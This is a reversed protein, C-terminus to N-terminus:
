LYKLLLEDIAKRTSQLDYQHQPASILAANFKKKQSVKEIKVLIHYSCCHITCTSIEEGTSTVDEDAYLQYHYCIHNSPAIIFSHKTVHDSSTFDIIMVDEDYEVVLPSTYKKAEPMNDIHPEQATITEVPPIIRQTKEEDASIEVARFVKQTENLIEKNSVHLQTEVSIQEKELRESEALTPQPEDLVRHTSEQTKFSIQQPQLQESSLQQKAEISFLHEFTHPDDPTSTKYFTKRTEVTKERYDISIEHLVSQQAELSLPCTKKDAPMQQTEFQAKNLAPQQTKAMPQCSISDDKISLEHVEVSFPSTKHSIQNSNFKFCQKVEKTKTPIEAAEKVDDNIGLSSKETSMILNQHNDLAAEQHTNTSQTQPTTGVPIQSVIEPTKVSTCETEFLKHHEEIAEPLQYTIQQPENKQTQDQVDILLRSPELTNLTQQIKHHTAETTFLVQQSSPLIEQDTELTIPQDVDVNDEDSFAETQLKQSKEHSIQQLSQQLSTKQPEFMSTPALQCTTTYITDPTSQIALTVQDDKVRDHTRSSSAQINTTIQANDKEVPQRLIQEATQDPLEQTNSTNVQPEHYTEVPTEQSTQKSDVPVHCADNPPHQVVHVSTPMTDMVVEHVSQPESVEQATKPFQRDSIKESTCLTEVEVCQRKDTVPQDTDPMTQETLMVPQSTSDSIHQTESSCWEHAQYLVDELNDPMVQLISSQHTIDAECSTVPADTSTICHHTEVMVVKHNDDIFQRSVKDSEKIPQQGGEDNPALLPQQQPSSSCVIDQPSDNLLQPTNAKTSCQPNEKPGYFTEQMKPSINQPKMITNEYTIQACKDLTPEAPVSNYDLSKYMMQQETEVALQGLINHPENQVQEQCEVKHIEVSTQTNIVAPQSQGSNIHLTKGSMSHVQPHEQLAEEDEEVLLKKHKVGHVEDSMLELPDRYLNQPQDNMVEAPLQQSLKDPGVFIEQTDNSTEITMQDEMNPFRQTTSETSTADVMVFAQTSKAVTVENTHQSKILKTIDEDETEPSVQEWITDSVQSTGVQAEQPSEEVMKHPAIEQTETVMDQPYIVETVELSERPTEVAQQNQSQPQFEVGTQGCQMTVPSVHRTIAQTKTFAQDVEPLKRHIKMPQNENITCHTDQHKDSNKNLLQVHPMTETSCIDGSRNDAQQLTQQPDTPSLQVEAQPTEKDETPINLLHSVKQTKLLLVTNTSENPVWPIETPEQKDNSTVKTNTYQHITEITEMSVHQTQEMPKDCAEGPTQFATQDFIIPEQQALIVFQHKNEQQQENDIIKQLNTQTNENPTQLTDVTVGQEVQPQLTYSTPELNQQTRVSVPTYASTQQMVHRRETLIYEQQEEGETVVHQIEHTVEKAEDLKVPPENAIQNPSQADLSPQLPSKKETSVQQSKLLTQEVEAQPMEGTGTPTVDEVFVHSVKQTQVFLVTNASENSMQSIKMLNQEEKTDVVRPKDTSTEQINPYQHITEITEMPVQQTQDMTDDDSAQQTKGSTPFISLIPGTLSHQVEAAQSTESQPIDEVLSRSAQQTQLLVTNRSENSIEIRPKDTPTEEINPYQHVTETTKMPVHQDMTENDFKQQIIEGPILTTQNSVNSTQQSIVAVQYTSEEELENSMQVIKLENNQSSSKPSEDQAQLTNVTFRDEVQPLYSSTPELNQQIRVSVPSTQQMVHQRETLIYEQEEEGETVVHQIERTVEDLKVPPEYNQNPAQLLQAELSPQLPIEKETSIQQSQLSIQESEAQSMEGTKPQAIDEVLLHSVKHTALLLATNRSDNLMSSIETPGQVVRPKNTSIEETNSYQCVTEITKMPTHQTQDMPEYNSAEGPTQFTAQDSVILTQQAIVAVRHKSEEEMIKQSSLQTNIQSANPTQLTNVTINQKVQAGVSVQTDDTQQMVHWSETPTYEQEKKGKAEDIKTPSEYANQNPVLLQLSPQLPIEKETSLQQSELVQPMERTKTQTIDEMLPHSVKHTEDSLVKNTGEHSVQPIESHAQQSNLLTHQIQTHPQEPKEQPKIMIQQKSKVVEHTPLQTEHNDQIQQFGSSSHHEIKHVETLVQQQAEPLWPTVQNDANASIQHKIESTKVMEQKTPDVSHLQQHSINWNTKHIANASTHDTEIPYWNMTKVPVQQNDAPIQHASILHDSHQVHIKTPTQYEAEQSETSVQKHSVQHAIERYNSPLQTDTQSQHNGLSSGCIMVQAIFINDM